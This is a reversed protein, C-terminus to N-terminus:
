IVRGCDFGERIAQLTDRPSLCDGIVHLEKVKGKLGRELTKDVWNAVVYIVTDIESIFNEEQTYVNFAKIIGGKIEKIDSHPIFKVGKKFLRQYTIPMETFGLYFGPSPVPTIIQVQKGQDSLYDAVHVGIMRAQHDLILVKEGITNVGLIAEEHNLVFINKSDEVPFPAPRPKSGTALVVVDPSEKIVKEITVEENLVVQVGLKELQLIRWRIVENFEERFPMRVHINVQGGVQNEKEYLTVTHGREAAVRAAELGAPGGGVVMVNKRQSTKVLPAEKERGVQPNQLCTLPQNLLVRNICGQVCAICHRVEEVRGEYAKRIIDPDAIHARCMVVLDAQGDALIKEAQIPDNIRCSAFVPVHDVAERIAAHLPVLVGPPIYMPGIVITYHGYMAGATCNFFDVMGTDELERVLKVMKQIDMGGPIFDDASIRLGVAFNPGVRSRVRKLVETIFKLPKGYEDSRQNGWPSWSEQILYGHGGHLEVGDLGGRFAAESYDAYLDILREIEDVEMEHPMERFTFGPTQSFGLTPRLSATSVMEKGLHVVQVFVKTDFEHIVESLMRFRPVIAEPSLWQVDLLASTPDIACAGAIILGCGGKARAKLYELYREPDYRKDFFGYLTEHGSLVVRNKVLVPGVKIPTFLYKFQETM